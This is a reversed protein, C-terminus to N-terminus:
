NKKYSHRVLYILVFLIAIILLILNTTFISKTRTVLEFTKVSLGDNEFVITNEVINDLKPEIIKGPAKISFKGDFINKYGDVSEEDAVFLEAFKGNVLFEREKKEFQIEQIPLLLLATNEESKLEEMQLLFEDTDKFNNRVLIGLYDGEQYISSGFGEPLNSLISDLGGISSQGTELAYFQAEQDILIAISYSGSFDENFNISMDWKVECASFILFVLLFKFLSRYKM